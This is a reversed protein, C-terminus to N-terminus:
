KRVCRVRYHGGKGNGVQGYWNLSRDWANNANLESSSWYDGGDLAFNGIMNANDILIGVELVSPLYWDIYGHASLGECYTAAQYSAGLGALTASNASGTWCANQTGSSTCRVSAVAGTPGWIYPGGPADAPTTFMPVRGDPSWGAFITGDACEGGIGGCPLGGENACAWRTGNYKLIQGNMCAQNGLQTLQGSGNFGIIVKWIDDECVMKYGVGGSEAGGTEVVRGAAPCADGPGPDAQALGAALLSLAMVCFLAVGSLIRM